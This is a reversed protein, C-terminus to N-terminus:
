VYAWQRSKKGFVIVDDDDDSNDSCSDSDNTEDCEDDSPMPSLDYFDDFTDDYCERLKEDSIVTDDDTESESEDTDSIVIEGSRVKENFENIQDLHCLAYMEGIADYESLNDTEPIQEYWKKQEIMDSETMIDYNQKNDTSSSFSNSYTNEHPMSGLTTHPMSGLTTHPTSGLTTHPMSGLTTHPMSGLTTHPRLCLEIDTMRIHNNYLIIYYEIIIPDM